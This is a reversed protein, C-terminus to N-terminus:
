FRQVLTLLQTILYTFGGMGNGNKSYWFEVHNANNPNDDGNQQPLNVDLSADNTLLSFVWHM